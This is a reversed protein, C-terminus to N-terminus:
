FSAHKLCLFPQRFFISFRSTFLSLYLVQVHDIPFGQYENRRVYDYLSPGLKEFVMCVHGRYDFWERLPICHRRRGVDYKFLTHLVELEIMAAVRYKEVNRVIKIAVYDRHKRDWCELVRGFTGAAPLTVPLCRQSTLCTTCTVLFWDFHAFYPKSDETSLRASRAAQNFPLHQCCHRCFTHSPRLPM